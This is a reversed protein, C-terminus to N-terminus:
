RRRQSTSADSDQLIEFQRLIEKMEEPLYSEAKLAILEPVGFQTEALSGVIAGLTDSDGGYAVAMRIADEFDKAQSAILLALPVCGMCTVDFYGREPLNAFADKGYFEIATDKFIRSEKNEAKRMRFIATAIAEAGKLGEPHNHSIAASARAQRRVEEEADFLWATPSVRMAAGNGFSYYPEPNAQKIWVEFRPGYAGKPDPYRNCWKLMATQYDIGNIIADAVAVTCITDDTFDCGEPFLEFNYDNTNHFEYDSGIIDGIIAGKM